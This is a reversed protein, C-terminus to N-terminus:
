EMKNFVWLNKIQDSIDNYPWLKNSNQYSNPDNVRIKGDEVGVMVIFHGSTTFDGPGMSCIIPNGERLNKFINKENLPLERADLGIKKSGSSFLSWSTGNGEVAFGYETSLDAMAKPHYKTDGTLYIAVMSLCTPGCGSLGMINGAYKTYGWRQDWQMLHPVTNSNKYEELNIEFELDKKEPYEFVFTKTDPNKEYLEILSDKYKWVPIGKEKAYERVDNNGYRVYIVSKVGYICALFLMIIILYSVLRSFWKRM